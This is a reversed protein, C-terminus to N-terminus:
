RAGPLTHDNIGPRGARSPPATTQLAQRGSPPSDCHCANPQDKPVCLNLPGTCAVANQGDCQEGDDIIEDGCAPLLCTTRCANPEDSNSAGNDCQEKKMSAPNTYEPNRHGDGCRPATCDADCTESDGNTDCDEAKRNFLGDNCAPVTCDRDCSETNVGTDCEEAMPNYIEDGCEPVTCDEDCSETNGGTDCQETIETDPDTFQPNAYGDGCRPWTCDGDCDDTDGGLDCQEPQHTEPNIFKTNPYGDGCMAERCNANCTATDQLGMDCGENWDRYGNGCIENSLCDKSCGDRSKTNGDDCVEGVQLEEDGCTELLKCDASCGDGSTRNADDCVEGVDLHDNGCVENSRCDASCGDGSVVNEDDCTEGSELRGNGCGVLAACDASCSDNDFINGDDCVEGVSDEIIGNGCGDSICVDQAAACTWGTPCRRGSLCLATRTEDFVCSHIAPMLAAVIVLLTASRGLIRRPRTSV